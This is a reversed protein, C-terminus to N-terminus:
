ICRERYPWQNEYARYLSVRSHIEVGTSDREQLFFGTRDWDQVLTFFQIRDQGVGTSHSRNRDREWHRGSLIAGLGTGSRNKGGFVMNLWNQNRFGICTLFFHKIVRDEPSM